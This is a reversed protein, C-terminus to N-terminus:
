RKIPLVIYYNHMFRCINEAEIGGDYVVIYYNFKFIGYEILDLNM